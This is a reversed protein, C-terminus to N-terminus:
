ASESVDRLIEFPASVITQPGFADGDVTGEVQLDWWWSGPTNPITDGDGVTVVNAAYSCTRELVLTSERNRRERVQSLAATITLPVGDVEVTFNTAVDADGATRTVVWSGPTLDDTPM